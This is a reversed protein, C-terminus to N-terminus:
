LSAKNSTPTQKSLYLFVILLTIFFVSLGSLPLMFIKNIIEKLIGLGFLSIASLRAIESTPIPPTIKLIKTTLKGFLIALIYKLLVAILSGLFSTLVLITTFFESLKYLLESFSNKDYHGDLYEKKQIESPTIIYFYKPSIFFALNENPPPPNKTKTDMIVSLKLDKKGFDSLDVDVRKQIDIPSIIEKNKVTIPLFDEAILLAQKPFNQTIPKLEFSFILASVLALATLFIIGYGKQYKIYHLIKQM